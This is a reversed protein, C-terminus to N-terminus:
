NQLFKYSVVEMIEVKKAFSIDNGYLGYTITDLDHGVILAAQSEPIGADRMMYTLTKRFCHFVFNKPYGLAMKM